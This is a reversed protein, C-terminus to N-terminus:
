AAEANHQLELVAHKARALFDAKAETEDFCIPKGFTAAALLPILLFDGRPLIRNLNELYVPVLQVDPHRKALHWLGPKFDNMEGEDDMTRTGEPFIILSDGADLAEEMPRLPNNSATVKKREILIARFVRNAVYRHIATKEWYDRAAIPRTKRRLQTPLSAWIVPADLNSGHNAFYIRQPIAGAPDVPDVGVWRAQAGTILRILAPIM